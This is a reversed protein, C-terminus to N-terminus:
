AKLCCAQQATSGYLFEVMSKGKESLTIYGDSPEILAVEPYLLESIHEAVDCADAPRKRKKDLYVTPLAEAECRGREAILKLIEMHANDFILEKM